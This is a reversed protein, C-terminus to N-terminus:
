SLRDALRAVDEGDYRLLLDRMGDACERDAANNLRLTRLARAWAGNDKAAAALLVLGHAGHVRRNLRRQVAPWRTTIEALIFLRRSQEPLSEGAPDLRVLVRVYYQWITLMRKTERVSLQPIEALREAIRRRVLDNSELDAVKATVAPEPLTPAGDPTAPVRDGRDADGPDADGRDADTLKASGPDASGPDASGPDASGPDTSGPDASEAVEDVPPTAPGLLGDLMADLNQAATAPVPVPLQILKRLFSWGVSPDGESKTASANLAAHAEDLQAAVAVSDLCLVFRTVPFARTIFVNIAEFVEATTRPSCRDLDDIFVILQHGSSRVDDLVEFVDHQALYLYGSRAHHYPDRLTGDAASGGAAFARSPMPGVLMDTPLYDAAPRRYRVITHGIGVAVAAFAILVAINSGNVVFSWLVTYDDTSRAMQAVIPVVLALASVALWPSLAAKLLSRRLRARDVRDLNRHFWYRESVPSGGPLLSRGVADLFATTLGAWVQEATQHAWPEFRATVLPPKGGGSGARPLMNPTWVPRGRGDLARVAEYARLRRVEVPPVPAERVPDLRQEILEVLTTKGAGWAGDLAIVTPGTRDGTLRDADPDAPPLAILDVLADVVAVRHLLDISAPRDGYGRTRIQWADAPSRGALAAGLRGGPVRLAAAVRPDARAAARAAAREADTLAAPVEIVTPSWLGDDPGATAAVASWTAPSATALVTAPTSEKALLLRYLDEQWPRMAKPDARLHDIGAIDDLWVVTRPAIAGAAAAETLSAFATEPPPRWLRWDPLVARMAEWAARTRGSLEEGVLVILGVGRAAEALHRRLTEDHAREVYAPLSPGEGAPKAAPRRVGLAYAETEALEGVRPGLPATAPRSPSWHQNRVLGREDAADTAFLEPEPFAQARLRKRVEDYVSRVDLVEPGQSIGQHLVTLLAETFATYPEDAKVLASQNAGTAVMVWGFRRRARLARGAFPCDLLVGTTVARRRELRRALQEFPVATEAVAAPDTRAVGLYLEEGDVLSHGAYYLLLTGDRDVVVDIQSLVRAVEGPETPDLLVHCRERPLGWMAADTFLGALADVNNAVAPLDPLTDADYRSAGVLLAASRNPDPLRPEALGQM